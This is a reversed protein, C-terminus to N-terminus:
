GRNRHLLKYFQSVSLEKIVDGDHLGAQDFLSGPVISESTVVERTSNGCRIYPSNHRFGLEQALPSALYWGYYFFEVAVYIAWAIVVVILSAIIYAALAGM